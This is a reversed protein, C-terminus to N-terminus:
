SGDGTVCRHVTASSDMGGCSEMGSEIRTRADCQQRKTEPRTHTYVATM